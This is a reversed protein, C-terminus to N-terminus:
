SFIIRFAEEVLKWFTPSISPLSSNVVSKGADLLLNSSINIGMDYIVQRCVAMFDRKNLRDVSDSLYDLDNKVEQKATDTISFKQELAKGFKNVVDRVILKEEVSFQSADRHGGAFLRAELKLRELPDPYDREKIFESISNTLWGKFTSKVDTFHKWKSVDNYNKREVGTYVNYSCTFSKFNARDMKFLFFLDSDNLKINTRLEDNKIEFDTVLYLSEIISIVETLEQKRM